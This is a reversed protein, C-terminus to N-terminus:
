PLIKFKWKASSSQKPGDRSIRCVRYIEEFKHADLAGCIAPHRDEFGMETHVDGARVVIERRGLRRAPEIYVRNVYERIEDAQRM